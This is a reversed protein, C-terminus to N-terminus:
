CQQLLESNGELIEVVSVGVSHVSYRKYGSRNAIKVSSASVSSVSKCVGSSRFDSTLYPTSNSSGLDALTARKYEPDSGDRHGQNTITHQIRVGSLTETKGDTLLLGDISPKERPFSHISKM